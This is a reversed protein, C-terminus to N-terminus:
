NRGKLFCFASLVSPGQPRLDTPLLAVLVAWVGTAQDTHRPCSWDGDAWSGFFCVEVEAPFDEDSWYM